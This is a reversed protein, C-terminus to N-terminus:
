DDWDAFPDEAENLNDDDMLDDDDDDMLDDDDDDMLDNEPLRSNNSQNFIWAEAASLFRQFEEELDHHQEFSAIYNFVRNGEVAVTRIASVNLSQNFDRHAIEEIVRWVSKRRRGGFHDVVDEMQLIELAEQLHAYMEATQIHAMGTMFETLNYQLQRIIQYIPEKSVLRNESATETKSIYNAVATMLNGWLYPFEENAPMKSLLQANGRNFIRRYLMFREELSAREDRLKHYRYLASAAPGDPVDLSGRAWHLVLADAVNFVQLVEGIYFIYDLAGAAKINKPIIGQEEYSEFTDVTFDWDTQTGKTRASDIPDDAAKQRRAQVFALALYEDFKDGTVGGVPFQLGMQLLQQVMRRRLDPTDLAPNIEGRGLYNAVLEPVSGSRNVEQVMTLIETRVKGQRISIGQTLARQFLQKGRAETIQINESTTVQYLMKRVFLRRPEILNRAVANYIGITDEPPIKETKLAKLLLQGYIARNALLFRAVDDDLARQNFRQTVKQIQASIGEQSIVEVPNEPDDTSANASDYRYTAALNKLSEQAIEDVSFRPGDIKFVAANPDLLFPYRRRVLEPRGKFLLTSDPVLINDPLTFFNSTSPRSIVTEPQGAESLPQDTQPQNSQEESM